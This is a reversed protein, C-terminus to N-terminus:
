TAFRDMSRASGRMLLIVKQEAVVSARKAIRSGSGCVSEADTLLTSEWGTKGILAVRSRGCDSEYYYTLVAGMLAEPEQWRKRM